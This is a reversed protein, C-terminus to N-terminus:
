SDKLLSSLDWQDRWWKHIQPPEYFSFSDDWVNFELVKSKTSPQRLILPVDPSIHRYYDELAMQEAYSIGWAVEFDLRATDDVLPVVAKTRYVEYRGYEDPTVFAPESNAYKLMAVAAPAIVPVGPSQMLEGMASATLIKRAMADPVKRPCKTLVDLVKMPNRSLVPGMQTYIVRGQCFEALRIDHVIKVETEMGFNACWEAFDPLETTDETVLYADDGDIFVSADIHYYEIYSLIFGGNLAGNGGGTNMDGSCRKGYVVYRIKGWSFGPSREQMKLLAKMEANYNRLRLWFRHEERLTEINVHADFRSHDILMFKPKRFRSAMADMIMGREIPSYGKAFVPTGDKNLLSYLAKECNQYHRALAANYVPNRFQIGRDEKELMKSEEYFELKQMETVYADQKRVGRMLYREMGNGFRSRKMAIRKDVVERASARPVYGLQKTISRMTKRFQQWAASKKNVEGTEFLHRNTITRLEQDVTHEHLGYCPPEVFAPPAPGLVTGTRKM